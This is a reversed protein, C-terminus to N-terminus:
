FPTGDLGSSVECFMLKESIINFFDVINLNKEKIVVLLKWVLLKYWYIYIHTHTTHIYVCMCIHFFDTM